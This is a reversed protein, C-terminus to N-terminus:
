DFDDLKFSRPSANSPQLLPVFVWLSVHGKEKGPVLSKIFVRVAMHSGTSLLSTSRDAVLTLNPRYSHM